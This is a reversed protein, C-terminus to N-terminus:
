DDRWMEAALEFLLTTDEYRKKLRQLDRQIAERLSTEFATQGAVDEIAVYSGSEGTQAIAPLDRRAVFARVKIPQADPTTIVEVRVRRILAAAQSIRFSEAAASDDWEFYAHLPSTKDRADNLVDRERLDGGAKTYIDRLREAVDSTVGSVQVEGSM